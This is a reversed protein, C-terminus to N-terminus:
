AAGLSNLSLGRRWFRRWDGRTVRLRGADPDHLTLGAIEGARLREVRPRLLDESLSQVLEGLREPEAAQLFADVVSLDAEADLPDGCWSVSARDALWRAVLGGGAVRGADPAERPVGPSWLVLGQAPALGAEGRERNVSHDFWLMQVATALVQLRRVVPSALRPARMPRGLASSPAPGEWAGEGGMHLVDLGPFPVRRTAGARELEPAAAFWLAERHAPNLDTVPTAVLDTLGPTLTVPLALWDRLGTSPERFGLRFAVEAEWGRRSGPELRGRALVRALTGPTEVDPARRMAEWLGPVLVQPELTV